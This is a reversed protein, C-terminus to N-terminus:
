FSPDTFENGADPSSSSDAAPATGQKITVMAGDTGIQVKASNEGVERLYYLTGPDTSLTFSDGEKVYMQSQAPDLLFNFEAYYEPWNKEQRRVLKFEKGNANDLITLESLDVVANLDNRGEKDEHGMVTFRNNPGFSDGINVFKSERRSQMTRFNVQYVPPNKATYTIFFSKQQRSVFLLKDTYPPHEAKDVPSTKPTAEFEELNSYGDNDTDKTLVNSSLFDLDYSLLWDNPVPPRLPPTRPDSLDYIVNDKEVIPVSRFVPVRKQKGEGLDMFKEDWTFDEQIITQVTKIGDTDPQPFEKKQAAASVEFQRAYGLTSMIHLVGFVACAIAVIALILKEYNDKIWDM